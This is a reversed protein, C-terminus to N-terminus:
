GIWQYGMGYVNSIYKHEHNELKRRLRNVNVALTHKDVFQGDCDWLQELLIEYTLLRGQNEALVKLLRFETPTVACAKQDVMVKAREWDIKLYGDDYGGPQEPQTRKFILEIKRLLVKMSFPKTIYDEAGLDYGKLVDEELDRATLFLVPIDQQAKVWQCFTFGEGDPLNVDQIVLQLKEKGTFSQYTEKAEQISFAASTHYGQKELAYCLAENLERDDEVVLINQMTEKAGGAISTDLLRRDNNKTNYCQEKEAVIRNKNPMYAMNFAKGLEKLAREAREPETTYTDLWEQMWLYEWLNCARM